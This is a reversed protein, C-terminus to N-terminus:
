VRTHEQYGIRCSQREIGFACYRIQRPGRIRTGPFRVSVPEVAPEGEGALLALAALVAAGGAGPIM